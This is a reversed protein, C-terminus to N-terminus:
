YKKSESTGRGLSRRQFSNNLKRMKKFFYKKTSRKKTIQKNIVLEEKKIHQREKPTEGCNRQFSLTDKKKKKTEQEM